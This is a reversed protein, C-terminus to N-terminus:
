FEGKHRKIGGRGIEDHRAIAKKMSESHEEWLRTSGEIDTFLFTVTGTPLEGVVNGEARVGTFWPDSRSSVTRPRHVSSSSLMLRGSGPGVDPLRPWVHEARVVAFATVPRPQLSAGIHRES